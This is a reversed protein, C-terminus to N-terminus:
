LDGIWSKKASRPFAGADTSLAREGVDRTPRDGKDEMGLEKDVVEKDLL